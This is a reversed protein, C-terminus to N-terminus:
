DLIHVIPHVIEQRFDEDYDCNALLVVGIKEEPVMLLYSRFGKDGGFHGITKKGGLASLQFGLGIHESLDTSPNTMLKYQDPAEGDELTQLFSVMWLSLEAASANLTSSPAHERTYPYTDRQYSNRSLWSKGHPATKLSDPIKFYRYDSQLMGSPLLINTKVYDEFTVGSVKEVIYGLIDYGLNSYAYKEGPESVLKINESLIYAKLSSDSQNNNSWHYNSIDPIGSTHNLLTKVSVNEMGKSDYQLEPILTKLKDDLSLQEQEILQMVALATFIKSVSATHFISNETVPKQNNISIVGYGKTYIISDNKIVGISLGPINYQNMKDVIISDIRESLTIAPHKHDLNQRFAKGTCGGLCLLLPYIIFVKKISM